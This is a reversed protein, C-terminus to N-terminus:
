ALGNASSSYYLCHSVLQMEVVRWSDLPASVSLFLSCLPSLGFWFYDMMHWLEWIGWSGKRPIQHWANLMDASQHNKWRYSSNRINCVPNGSVHFVKPVAPPATAMGGKCVSLRACGVGVLCMRCPQSYRLSAPIAAGSPDRQDWAQQCLTSCATFAVLSLGRRASKWLSRFDCLLGWLGASGWQHNHSITLTHPATSMLCSHSWLWVVM